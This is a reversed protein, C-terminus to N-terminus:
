CVFTRHAFLVFWHKSRQCTLWLTLNGASKWRRMSDAVSFAKELRPDWSRFPGNHLKKNMIWAGPQTPSPCQICLRFKAAQGSASHHSRWAPLVSFFFSPQSCWPSNLTSRLSHKIKSRFCYERHSLFWPNWLSCTPLFIVPQRFFHYCAFWSLTQFVLVTDNIKRLVAWRQMHLSWAQSLQTKPMNLKEM